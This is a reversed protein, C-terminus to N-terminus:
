EGTRRARDFFDFIREMNEPSRAIISTHDGGPVEVYEYTMGLERMTDVWRRTRAVSVSQDATGQVVIVPTDVIDKLMAPDSAIAPAVPALAAWLNPYKVGFHWTAGGGM